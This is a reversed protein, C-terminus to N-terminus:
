RRDYNEQWIGRFYFINKFNNTFEDVHVHIRIRRDMGSNNRDLTGSNTNDNNNTRHAYVDIPTFLVNDLLLKLFINIFHFLM